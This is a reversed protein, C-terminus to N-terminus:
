RSHIRESVSDDKGERHRELLGLIIIILFVSPALKLPYNGCMNICFVCFATFVIRNSRDLSKVFGGLFVLGIIGYSHLFALWDNHMPFKHGWPSGPGFGFVWHKVAKFQQLVEWWLQYRQNIETYVFINGDYVAYGMAALCGGFVVLWKPRVSFKRRLVEFRILPLQVNWYYIPIALIAPVVAASTRSRLFLVALMPIFYVWRKRFFFPLCIALYAVLFNPNGLTGCSVTEDLQRKIEVFRSLAWIVPDCNWIQIIGLLAQAIASICIINYFTENRLRSRLVAVYISLGIVLFTVQSYGKAM